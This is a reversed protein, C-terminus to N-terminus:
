KGVRQECKNYRQLVDIFKASSINHHTKINLFETLRTQWPPYGCMNLYEGCYIGLQPDPFEFQERMCADVVEISIKGADVLQKCTSVVRGRGDSPGLLKVHIKKGMYGNRYGNKENNHWVVHQDLPLEKEVEFRLEAENKQVKGEFDYFTIFPVGSAISWLTLKALDEYSPQENGLLVTIHTPIKNFRSANRHVEELVSVTSIYNPKLEFLKTKITVYFDYICKYLTFVFHIFYWSVKYLNFHM